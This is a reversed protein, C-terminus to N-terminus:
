AAQLVTQVPEARKGVIMAQTYMDRIGFYYDSMVFGNSELLRKVHERSRVRTIEAPHFKADKRGFIRLVSGLCKFFMVSVGFEPPWFLVIKGQPKIIRSFEALIRSIEEETFHEMVGLNYVGDVSENPLPIDFVSGHVV